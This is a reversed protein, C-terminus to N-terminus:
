ELLRRELDDLVSPSSLMLPHMLVPFSLNVARKWDSSSAPLIILDMPTRYSVVPMDGLKAETAQLDALFQSGRRMQAAGRSPYISAAHTGNHPSSITFFKDCRDAGGLKQLYYRSVTGGMSFSVISFREDKGFAADIDSKLGEALKDLGGQGDCPRMRPVLCQIKQKELRAKIHKFASGNELFGHVLVVRGVPTFDPSKSKSLRLPEPNRAMVPISVLLGLLTLSLLFKM